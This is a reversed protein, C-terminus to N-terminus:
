KTPKITGLVKDTVPDRLTVPKGQENALAQAEAKAKDAPVHGFDTDPSALAIVAKTM